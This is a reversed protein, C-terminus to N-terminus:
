NRSPRSLAPSHFYFCRSASSIKLLRVKLFEARKATSFLKWTSYPYLFHFYLAHVVHFSLPHGARCSFPPNSEAFFKFLRFISFSRVFKQRLLINAVSLLTSAPANEVLLILPVFFIPWQREECRGFDWRCISLFGLVWDFGAGDGSCYGNISCVLPSELPFALFSFPCLSSFKFVLSCRFRRPCLLQNLIKHEHM